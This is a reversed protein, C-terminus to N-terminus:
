REDPVNLGPQTTQSQRNRNQHDNKMNTSKM